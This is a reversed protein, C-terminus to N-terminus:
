CKMMSRNLLFKKVKCIGSFSPIPTFPPGLVPHLCPSKASLDMTNNYQKPNVITKKKPAIYVIKLFKSDQFNPVNWVVLFTTQNVHIQLHGVVLPLM